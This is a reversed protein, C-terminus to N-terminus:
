RSGAGGTSLLVSEKIWTPRQDQAPNNTLRLLRDKSTNLIYIEDNGDRDSTFAFWFGDFASSIYPQRDNASGPLTHLPSRGDAEVTIIDNGGSQDVNSEFFQAVNSEFMVSRGSPHFDPSDEIVGVERFDGDGPMMTTLAGTRVDPPLLQGYQGTFPVLGKMAGDAELLVLDFTNPSTQAGTMIRLGGPHVRTNHYSLAEDADLKEMGSGNAEILYIQSRGEAVDDSSMTFVLRTGNPFWSVSHIEGTVTGNTVNTTNTGDPDMTWIDNGSDSTRIFALRDGRFALSPYTDDAANNTLNTAAIAEEPAKDGTLVSYIEWNGDRDSQFFVPVLEVEEGCASLALAGLMALTVFGFRRVLGGRKAAPTYRPTDGTM